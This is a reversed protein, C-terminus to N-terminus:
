AVVITESEGIQFCSNGCSIADDLDRVVADAIREPQDAVSEM